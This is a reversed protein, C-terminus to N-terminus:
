QGWVSLDCRRINVAAFLVLSADQESTVGTVVLRDGRRWVDVSERSPSGLGDLASTM